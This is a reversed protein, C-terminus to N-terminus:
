FATKTRRPWCARCATQGRIMAVTNFHCKGHIPRKIKGMFCHKKTKNGTNPGISLGTANVGSHLPGHDVESWIFDPSKRRVMTRKNPGIITRRFDPGHDPSRECRFIQDPGFQFTRYDPGFLAPTFAVKSKCQLLTTTFQMLMQLLNLISINM